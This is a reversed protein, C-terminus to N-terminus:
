KGGNRRAAALTKLAVLPEKSTKEGNKSCKNTSANRIGIVGCAQLNFVLLKSVKLFPREAGIGQHLWALM